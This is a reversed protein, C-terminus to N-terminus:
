LSPYQSVKARSTVKLPRGVMVLLRRFVLFGPIVLLGCVVGVESVSVSLVRNTVISFRRFLMGLVEQM